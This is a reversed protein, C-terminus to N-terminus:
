PNRGPREHWSAMLAMKSAMLDLGFYTSSASIALHKSRMLWSSNSLFSWVKGVSLRAMRAQSRAPTMSPPVSNGVVSPVGCPPTIEGRSALIARCPKSVTMRSAKGSRLGPVFMWQFGITTLYASSKTTM